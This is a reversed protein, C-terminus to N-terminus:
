LYEKSWCNTCLWYFLKDDGVVLVLRKGWCRTCLPSLDTPTKTPGHAGTAGVRLGRLRETIRRAVNRAEKLERRFQWAEYLRRLRRWWRM